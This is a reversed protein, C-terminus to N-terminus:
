IEGVVQIRHKVLTFNGAKQNFYHSGNDSLRVGGTSYPQIKMSKEKVNIDRVIYHYYNDSKLRIIDGVYFGGLEEM